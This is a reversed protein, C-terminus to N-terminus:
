SREMRVYAPIGSPKTGDGRVVTGLDPDDSVLTAGYKTTSDARYYQASARPTTMRAPSPSKPSKKPEPKMHDIVQRRYAGAYAEM